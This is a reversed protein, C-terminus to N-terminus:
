SGPAAISIGRAELAARIRTARGVAGPADGHVCITEVRMPVRHGDISTVHGELAIAVAQAASATEDLIAGVTRRDVLRGDRDYARDAFGELAIRLGGARGARELMSSPPAFLILSPDAAVVARVIAESLAGERAAMNYLAGHPKVHRIPVGEVRAIGTVTAIQYLVADEVEWDAMRMERRGFGALDPFSPHVGVAVARAAALRITRRIVTPDGGHFGAAVNASSIHPMLGADDGVVFIGFSEGLDANLDIRVVLRGQTSHPATLGSSPDHSQVFLPCRMIAIGKQRWRDPEGLM